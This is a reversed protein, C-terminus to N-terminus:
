GACLTEWFFLYIIDVRRETVFRDPGQEEPVAVSMGAWLLKELYRERMQVPFSKFSQFTKIEKALAGLIKMQVCATALDRM